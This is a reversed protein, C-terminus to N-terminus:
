GTGCVSIVNKEALDKLIQLGGTIILDPNPHHSEQAVQNLCDETIIQVHELVVELLRYTMPNIEIFKVEDDQDRYAILCTPQGPPELPLYEPSILQVPFQYVLPWALPSLKVTHKLLSESPQQNPKIDEKAISLAMEVWEYHALELLFPYDSPNARENELYDLFEEAIESFYPTKSRHKSFFDQTLEFWQRDDLIKRIVPFNGALFGEINNFILERYMAMRETKVDAPAPNIAPDRIYRTFELQKTKFDVSM